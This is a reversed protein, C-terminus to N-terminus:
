RVASASSVRKSSPSLASRVSSRARLDALGRHRRRDRRQRIGLSSGCQLRSPLRAAGAAGPHPRTTVSVGRPRKAWPRGWPAATGAGRLAAGRRAARSWRASIRAVRMSGGSAAVRSAVRETANIPGFGASCACTSARSRCSGSARSRPSETRTSSRRAPAVSAARCQDAAHHALRPTRRGRRRSSPSRRAPRSGTRGDAALVAARQRHLHVHHRARHHLVPRPEARRQAFREPPPEPLRRIVLVGPRRRQAPLHIGGRATRCRPDLRAPGPACGPAHRRARPPPPPQSPPSSRRPQAHIRQHDHRGREPERAIRM